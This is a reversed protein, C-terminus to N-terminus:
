ETEFVYFCVEELSIIRRNKGEEIIVEISDADVSCLISPVIEEEIVLEIRCDILQLLYANLRIGFFFQILQPACSVVEGFHRTLRDRNCKTLNLVLEDTCETGCYSTEIKCIKDYLVAIKRGQKTLVVFDRGALWVTGEIIRNSVFYDEDELALNDLECSLEICIQEGQIDEFAEQLSNLESEERNGLALSLLLRNAEEVSEKLRELEERPLCTNPSPFSPNPQRESCTESRDRKKRNRLKLFEHYLEDDNQVMM